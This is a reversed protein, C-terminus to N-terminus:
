TVFDPQKQILYRFNASTLALNTLKITTYYHRVYDVMKRTVLVRWHILPSLRFNSNFRVSDNRNMSSRNVGRTGGTTSNSVQCLAHTDISNKIM